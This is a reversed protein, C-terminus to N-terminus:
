NSGNAQEVFSIGVLGITHAVAPHSRIIQDTQHMIEKTRELGASDPLQVSVIIRGMDQQPVFGRPSDRFVVYTLFVLGGYALVVIAALRLGRGITWGYVETLRDFVNNFARFLGGLLVNVPRIVVWGLALGGLLGPM